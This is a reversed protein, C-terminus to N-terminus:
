KQPPVGAVARMFEERVKHRTALMSQLEAWDERIDPESKAEASIMEILAMEHNAFFQEAANALEANASDMDRQAQAVRAQGEPTTCGRPTLDIFEVTM